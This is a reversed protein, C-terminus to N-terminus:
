ELLGSFEDSCFKGWLRLTLPLELVVHVWPPLAPPQFIDLFKGILPANNATKSVIYYKLEPKKITFM